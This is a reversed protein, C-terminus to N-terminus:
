SKEQDRRVWTGTPVKAVAGGDYVLDGRVFTMEVKGSLVRSEYPTVAHRHRIMSKDVTFVAEPNWVVVDADWGAELRGKRRSLGALRAPGECMWRTLHQLTYGRDKAESWVIGLTFQLSSIGGWARHFDGQEPLKLAPSCPSHDSVVLDIQGAGLGQWLRERNARERIPPACKFYTAGEPIEEAILALYHPCTEATILGGERRAKTISEIAEASSLHVIHIPCQFQKSLRIMFDVARNEWEKPRSQLYSGYSRASNGASAVAGELEAHVLLPVKRRALIPMAVWFEKETSAPFEEVGSDILFAKFGLVGGDMMGELEGDNGPIVGGWFGFDVWCHGEAAHAKIKLAEVTTTPPLSNLPMDVITTIGGAAAAQTGTQFGEWETRGPENFHVHTDVIGAMVVSNGVDVVAMGSPIEDPAGVKAIKGDIIHLTGARTENPLVLRNTKLVLM